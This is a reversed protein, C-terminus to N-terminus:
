AGSGESAPHEAVWEVARRWECAPETHGTPLFDGCFACDNDDYGATITETRAALDRVIAELTDAYRLTADLLDWVYATGSPMSRHREVASSNEDRWQRALRVDHWVESASSESM